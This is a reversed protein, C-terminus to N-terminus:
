EDKKNKGIKNIANATTDVAKNVGKVILKKLLYILLAIGLIVAIALVYEGTTHNGM